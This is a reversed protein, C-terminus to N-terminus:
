HQQLHNQDVEDLFERMENRCKDRLELDEEFFSWMLSSSGLVDKALSQLLELVIKPVKSDIQRSQMVYQFLLSLSSSKLGYFSLWNVVDILDINADTTGNVFAVATNADNKGELDNKRELFSHRKKTLDQRKSPFHEATRRSDVARTNLQKEDEYRLILNNESRKAQEIIDKFSLCTLLWIGRSSWFTNLGDDASCSLVTREHAVGDFERMTQLLKGSTVDYIHLCSQRDILGFLLGNAFVSIHKSNEKICVPLYRLRSMCELKILTACYSLRFVCDSKSLMLLEKSTPHVTLAIDSTTGEDYDEIWAGVLAASIDRFDSLNLVSEQVKGEKITAAQINECEDCWFILINELYVMCPQICVGGDFAFINVSVCNHLIAQTAGTEITLKGENYKMYINRCCVCYSDVAHGRKECWFLITTAEHWKVTMVESNKANSLQITKHKFWTLSPQLFEWFGTVGNKYVILLLSPQNKLCVIDVVSDANRELICDDVSTTVPRYWKTQPVLYFTYLCKDEKVTLFVHNVLVWVKSIKARDIFESLVEKGRFRSGTDCLSVLSFM